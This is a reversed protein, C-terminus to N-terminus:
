HRSKRRNKQSQRRNKKKKNKTKRKNTKKLKKHKGGFAMYSGSENISYPDNYYKSQLSKLRNILNEITAMQSIKTVGNPAYREINKLL